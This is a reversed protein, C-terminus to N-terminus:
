GSLEWGVSVATRKISADGVILWGSRGHLTLEAELFAWGCFCGRYSGSGWGVAVTWYHFPGAEPIRAVAIGAVWSSYGSAFSNPLYAAVEGAGQPGFAWRSTIPFYWGLGASAFGGFAGDSAQTTPREQITASAGMRAFARPSSWGGITGGVSAFVGPGGSLYGAGAAIDASYYPASDPLPM